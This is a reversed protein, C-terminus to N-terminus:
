LCNKYEERLRKVTFGDTRDLVVPSHRHDTTYQCLRGEKPKEM